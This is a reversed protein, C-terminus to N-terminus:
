GSPYGYLPKRARPAAREDAPPRRSRPVHARHVRVAVLPALLRPGHRERLAAADDLEGAELDVVTPREDQVRKSLLDPICREVLHLSRPDGPVAVADRAGVVEDREGRLDAPVLGHGREQAVPEVTPLM